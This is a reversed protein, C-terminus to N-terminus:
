SDSLFRSLWQAQQESLSEFKLGAIHREEFHAEDNVAAWQVTARLRMAPLSAEEIGDVVVFLALELTDDEPLSHASAICTGGQSLDRTVAAIIRGDALTVEAALRIDFRRHARRNASDPQSM